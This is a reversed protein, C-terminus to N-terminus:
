QPIFTPLAKGCVAVLECIDSPPLGAVYNSNRRPGCHVVQDVMGRYRACSNAEQRNPATRPDILSSKRLVAELGRNATNQMGLFDM